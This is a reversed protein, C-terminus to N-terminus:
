QIAVWVVAANAGVYDIGGDLVVVRHVPRGAPDALRDPLINGYIAPAPLDPVVM